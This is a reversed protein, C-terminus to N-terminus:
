KSWIRRQSNEAERWYISKAISM